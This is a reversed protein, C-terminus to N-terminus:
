KEMKSQNLVELPNEIELNISLHNMNRALEAKIVELLNETDGFNNISIVFERKGNISPYGYDFYQQGTSPNTINMLYVSVSTTCLNDSENVDMEENIRMKMPINDNTDKFGNVVISKFTTNWKKLTEICKQKDVNNLRLYVQFPFFGLNYKNSITMMMITLSSVNDKETQIMVM